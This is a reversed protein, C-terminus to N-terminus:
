CIRSTTCLRWQIYPAPNVNRGWFFQYLHWIYCTPKSKGIYIHGEASPSGLHRCLVRSSRVLSCYFMDRTSHFPLVFSKNISSTSWYIKCILLVQSSHFIVSSAPYWINEKLVAQFFTPFGYQIKWTFLGFRNSHGMLHFYLKPLRANHFDFWHVSFLLEKCTIVLVFPFLYALVKCPCTM